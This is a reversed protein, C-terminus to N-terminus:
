ILLKGGVMISGSDLRVTARTISAWWQDNASNKGGMSTNSGFGLTLGGMVKDDQMFGRRLNPNLGFGFFAFRGAEKGGKRLYRDFLDSGRTASHRKIRGDNLDIALNEIKENGLRVPAGFVTRGHASEEDVSVEIAGAPLFVIRGNQAMEESSIGDSISVPRRDLDFSLQTGAPTSISINGRGSLLSALNRARKAIAKHDAMCGWFMVDRWEEYNLGQAKAREPTALTAEIALMRVKHAKAVRAWRRAYLSKDYRTDLWVSVEGRKEKPISGWPVPNKPGMTFVYFDTEELASEEQPTISGLQKKSGQLISRLWVDEYRVSLLCPCALLSCESAFAKALDLTYDWSQIWVRDKPKVHLSTDFVKKVLSSNEAIGHM